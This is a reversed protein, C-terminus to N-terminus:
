TYFYTFKSVNNNSSVDIRNGHDDYMYLQVINCFIWCVHYCKINKINPFCWSCIENSEIVPKLLIRLIKPKMYEWFSQM